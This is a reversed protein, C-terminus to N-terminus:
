SRITSFDVKSAKIHESLWANDITPKSRSADLNRHM